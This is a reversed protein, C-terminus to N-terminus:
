GKKIPRLINQGKAVRLGTKIPNLIDKGVQQAVESLQNFTQRGTQDAQLALYKSNYRLQNLGSMLTQATYSDAFARRTAIDAPIIKQLWTDRVVKTLEPATKPSAQAEQKLGVWAKNAIGGLDSGIGSTATIPASTPLHLPAKLVKVVDGGGYLATRAALDLSFGKVLLNKFNM